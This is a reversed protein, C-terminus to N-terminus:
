FVDVMNPCGMNTNAAWNRIAESVLKEHKSSLVNVRTRRPGDPYIDAVLIYWGAKPIQKRNKAAIMGSINMQMDVEGHRHGVHVTPTFYRYSVTRYYGGYPNYNVSTIKVTRSLCRNARQAVRQMVASYSDNVVVKDHKEYSSTKAMQRFQDPTVPVTVCGAMLSAAVLLPIIWYGKKM